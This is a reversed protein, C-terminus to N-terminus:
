QAKSKKKRATPTGVSQWTLVEQVSFGLEQCQAEAFESFYTGLKLGTEPDVDDHWQKLWERLDLLGALIPKLREAEWGEETRMRQYYAALARARELHTWGAWGLVPTRDSDRELGPYLVFREKPVDLGGRLRWYDSKLFDNPRYKSPVPIGVLDGADAKRQLEWVAEWESRKRLGAEKYRLVPLFPVAEGVVLQVILEDLTESSNGSYMEAVLVWDADQALADRLQRCSLVTGGQWISQAEVRDLLWTKLASREMEEWNPLNWRRKYEPQEILAIDHNNEIIRLRAEVAERYHEPWEAPVETIPASGHREFWTNELEGAAVQRAMKIEFTRQGLKLPPVENAPLSPDEDLLGYSYYVQWDLEEQLAIMRELLFISRKKSDSLTSSLPTQKECLRHPLLLERADAIQQIEKTLTLPRHEPLPFSKIKTSDFEYYVDWLYKRVRAGDDGVQDGGKPFYVQKLWFCACSSVLVGLLELHDDLSAGRTLKIVPASQKFVKGGTDLVFQNHTAVFSFTISLPIELKSRYVERWEYWAMELQTIPVSFRKRNRLYCAYIWFHRASLPMESLPILSFDGRYVWIGYLSPDIGWDHIVDGEVVPRIVEFGFRRCSVEDPMLFVDDEGTFATLGIESTEDSLVGRDEQLLEKLEAAGGGGISWPHVCFSARPADAVSVWKSQSGSLDVQNIISLWVPAQVPNEPVGTEGRIGRVARVRDSVPRQNRSLLIVTPTGHGPLYVGSTDIVHTLDKHLLYNEILKKGFTRKMFANSVIMGMWGAPTMQPTDSHSTLDFFRETFPVGLQYRGHCTQFRSRYAERLVPDSVNIYPPNGVVVQYPQSLIRELEEADETDYYHQMRDELLGRQIGGGGVRSGHLLSDGAAVNFKFNPADRLRGICSSELASILLRFRTIEIAFPNLDVGYVADLARQVLAPMNTGPEKNEWARILRAFAELLFHGSGCSPDIMRVTELGFADLAPNLTRDLIFDIVFGPTQCLAYRKRASESLNQYLDGLFRTGHSPDSFDHILENSDPDVRQFFEVILAAGQATPQLSFLPNHKHDFLGAVGPLKAVESFVHLLYDRDTLGPDPRLFLTRRDKAIALRESPGSIWAVKANREDLWGNDELFRVFVCGLLWHAAAQTIADDAFATYGKASGESRAARVAAEHREHLKAELAPEDTLREQIATATSDLLKQLGQRLKQEDIL